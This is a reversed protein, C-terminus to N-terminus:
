LNNLRNTLLEIKQKLEEKETIKDREQKALQMEIETEIWKNLKEASFSLLYLPIYSYDDNDYDEFGVSDDKFICLRGDKIKFSYYDLFSEFDTVYYASNHGLLSVWKDQKEALELQKTSLIDMVQWIKELNLTKM